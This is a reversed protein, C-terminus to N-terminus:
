LYPELLISFYNFKKNMFIHPFKYSFKLPKLSGLQSELNEATIACLFDARGTNILKERELQNM